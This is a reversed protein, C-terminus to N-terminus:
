LDYPNPRRCGHAADRRPILGADLYESIGATVEESSPSQVDSEVTRAVDSASRIGATTL